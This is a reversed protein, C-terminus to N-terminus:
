NGRLALSEFDPVPAVSSPINGTLKNKFFELFGLSLIYDSLSGSLSGNYFSMKQHRSTANMQLISGTLDHDSENGVIDRQGFLNIRRGNWFM